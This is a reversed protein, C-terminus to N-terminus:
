VSELSEETGEVDRMLRAGYVETASKAREM